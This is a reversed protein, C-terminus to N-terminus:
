DELVGVADGCDTLLLYYKDHFTLNLIRVTYGNKDLQIPALESDIAKPVWKLM